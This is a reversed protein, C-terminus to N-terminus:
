IDHSVACFIRSGPLANGASSPDATFYGLLLAKRDSSYFSNATRLAHPYIRLRPVFEHDIVEGASNRQGWASGFPGIRDLEDWREAIEGVARALLNLRGQNPSTPCEIAPRGRVCVTVLRPVRVNRKNSQPSLRRM